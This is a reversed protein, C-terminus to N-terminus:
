KLKFYFRIYILHCKVNKLSFNTKLLIKLNFKRINLRNSIISKDRGAVFSRKILIKFFKPKYHFFMSTESIM